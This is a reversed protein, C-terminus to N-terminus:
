PAPVAQAGDTLGAPASYANVVGNMTCSQGLIDEGQGKIEGDVSIVYIRGDQAAIATGEDIDNQYEGPGPESTDGIELWGDAPGFSGSTDENYAPDVSTSVKVAMRPTTDGSDECFAAVTLPGSTALEVYTGVNLQVVYPQAVAAPAFATADLGDLKDADAAKDGTKLFGSADSTKLFATADLGDLKDADAVRAPLSAAIKAATEFRDAGALRSVGGSGAYTALQAEVAESVAAPGGLIIIRNPDLRQLEDATDEPLANTATLLLPATRLAALPGGALADAFDDSRAVFVVEVPGDIADADNSPVLVALVTVAVAFLVSLLVYRHRSTETM